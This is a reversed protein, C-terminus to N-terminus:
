TIQVGETATQSPQGGGFKRESIAGIMRKTVYPSTRSCAKRKRELYCWKRVLDRSSRNDFKYTNLIQKWNGAGYQEIGKM